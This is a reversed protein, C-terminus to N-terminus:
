RSDAVRHLLAAFREATTDWNHRAVVEQGRAVLGRRHEDDALIRGLSSALAEADGVPVLDAGPGAVEPLSGTETAVVPVDASMAELPPFGFGEYISPYAYVSAGRLLAERADDSVWGLRVIRERHRSGDLARDLAEAGWGDRGALVLRVDRDGDGLLDFARVLTPLDKRPEVTSLALVYRDSGVLRRGATVDGPAVLRVGNPISVVRDPDVRFHDIVENRVFSSPTHVWAGRDLARQVLRPYALADGTALEPFHVATLDHVTAIAGARTPPVVYNPGWVVDHRGIWADVRPHDWHKWLARLPRAAMPREMVAVKPPVVSSLRGRGRWTVAFATLALDDRAALRRTTEIALVGVGTQATLLSTLDVAVRLM